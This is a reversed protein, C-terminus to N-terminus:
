YKAREQYPPNLPNINQSHQHRKAPLQIRKILKRIEAFGLKTLRVTDSFIQCITGFCALYYYFRMEM